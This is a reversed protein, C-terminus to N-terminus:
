EFIHIKEKSYMKINKKTQFCFLYTMISFEEIIEYTYYLHYPLPPTQNTGL